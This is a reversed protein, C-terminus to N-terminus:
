FVGYAMRRLIEELEEKSRIGSEEPRRILVVPIGARKAAALKAEVGGSEGSDKSVLVEARIQRILRENADADFPPDQARWHGADSFIKECAARSSPTDLVRAYCRDQFGPIRERYIPLTVVGTTLLIRGDEGALRSATDAAEVADKAWYIGDKYASHDTAPRLYRLYLVDTDLCAQKLERSVEVAFPHTADLVSEIQRDRILKKWATCDRRGTLRELSDPYEASLRDFMRAGMDTASSVIVSSGAELLLAVAEESETTGAAVLWTGKSKGNMDINGADTRGTM